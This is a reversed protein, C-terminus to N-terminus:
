LLHILLQGRFRLSCHKWGPVNAQSKPMHYLFKVMELDGIMSAASAALDDVPCGEAILWQMFELNRSRAAGAAVIHNFALGRVFLYSLYFYFTIKTLATVNM